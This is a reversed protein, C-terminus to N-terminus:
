VNMTIQLIEQNDNEPSFKVFQIKVDEELEFEDSPTPKKEMACFMSTQQNQILSTDLTLHDAYNIELSSSLLNRSTPFLNWLLITGDESATFLIDDHRVFSSVPQYHSQFVNTCIGNKVSWKRVTCDLSSSLVFDGYVGIQTIKGVHGQCLSMWKATKVRFITIQTDYAVFLMDEFVQFHEAVGGVEYEKIMGGNAIDWSKITCDESATYLLGSFFQVKTVRQKHEMEITYLKQKLPINWANVTGDESATFLMLPTYFKREVVEISNIRESHGSFRHHYESSRSEAKTQIIESVKWGYSEGKNDSVYLTDSMLKISTIEGETTGLTFTNVGTEIDIIQIQRDKTAAFICKQNEEV